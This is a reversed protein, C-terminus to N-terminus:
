YKDNHFVEEGLKDLEKKEYEELKNKTIYNIPEIVASDEFKEDRSRYLENIQKFDVELLENILNENNNSKELIKLVKKQNNKNLLEKVEDLSGLKIGRLLILEIYEIKIEDDNYM